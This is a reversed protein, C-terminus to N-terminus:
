FISIDPTQEKAKRTTHWTLIQCVIVAQVHVLMWTPQKGIYKRSIPYKKNYLLSNNQRIYKWLWMSWYHKM